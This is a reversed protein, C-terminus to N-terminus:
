RHTVTGALPLKLIVRMIQPSPLQHASKTSINTSETGNQDFNKCLVRVSCHIIQPWNLKRQYSVNLHYALLAHGNKKMLVQLSLLEFFISKSMLSSIFYCRHHCCCILSSEHLTCLSLVLVPLIISLNFFCFGKRDLTREPSDRFVICM